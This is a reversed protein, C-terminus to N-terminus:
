GLLESHYNETAEKFGKLPAGMLDALSLFLRSMSGDQFSLNRGTRIRGGASGGLVLPYQICDHINGDWMDSTLLVLSNDLLTGDGERISDMKKLLWTFQRVHWHNVLHYMHLTSATNRHHSLAHWQGSVGPIFSFDMYKPGYSDFMFTAIRTKDMRLALVLLDLMLRTHERFNEPAYLAFDGFEGAAKPDEPHYRVSLESRADRKWEGRGKELRSIRLELERIGDFYEALTQRDQASLRRNLLEAQQRVFDLVSKDRKLWTPDGFLMKFAGRPDVEKALPKDRGRWSISTDYFGRGTQAPSIGLALSGFDTRGGIERAILQDISIGSRNGNRGGPEGTLVAAVKGAHSRLGKLHPHVLGELVMVKHKISELPKLTPKFSLDRGAGSAGWQQTNVGLPFFTTVFRLPPQNNESRKAPAAEVLSELWPLTLSVGLGQLAGRRTIHSASNLMDRM